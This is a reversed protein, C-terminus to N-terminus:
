DYVAPPKFMPCFHTFGAEIYKLVEFPLGASIKAYYWGASVMDVSIHRKPEGKRAVIVSGCDADLCDIERWMM